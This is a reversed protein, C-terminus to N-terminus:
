HAGAELPTWSDGHPEAEMGEGRPKGDGSRPSSLSLTKSLLKKPERMRLLGFDQGKGLPSGEPRRFYYSPPPSVKVGPLAGRGGM